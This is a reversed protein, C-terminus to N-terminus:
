SRSQVRVCRRLLPAAHLLCPSVAVCMLSELGAGLEAARRQQQLYQGIQYSNVSVVNAQNNYGGVALTSADASLSVALGFYVAVSADYPRLQKALSWTDRDPAQVYIYVSLEGTSGVAITSGSGSMAVSTGWYEVYAGAGIIFTAANTDSWGSGPRRFIFVASNAASAAVLSGDASVAVATGLQNGSITSAYSLQPPQLHAQQVFTSDQRGYVYVAGAGDHWLFSCSLVISAVCTVRRSNSARANKHQGHQKTTVGNSVLGEYNAGAVLVSGNASAATALGLQLATSSTPLRVM